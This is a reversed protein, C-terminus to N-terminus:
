KAIRTNYTTLGIEDIIKLFRPDDRLIDFDPNTAVLNFFTYNRYQSEMNKELWYLSKERNELIAYWWSTFFKDGSMGIVPIPKDTNIETLWAFLGPIGSRKYADMIEDDHNGGGPNSSAIKQLEKVAKDGEGLKAYNLFLLWNTLIYNPKLEQAMRCAELAKANEEEFYYIWANLNHMVWFYPELELVRNMHLRAEEIPGTIMLLQAYAQHAYGSNPNLQISLLLEKGGEEWKREPWILYGGKVLHAEACDPDLELAKRSFEKAKGIGEFYPQYWGWASLTLWADALGAYAEAFTSDSDVAKQYNRASGMLGERDIDVRQEDNAKNFLFRAKLFYDYAEPNITPMKDIQGIEERSLVAELRGAVNKAIDSSLALVDAFEGEFKESMIHKDSRADILQIFIRVKNESRLVSGELVYNVKLKRAIEPSTMLNGRFHEATTRSRVTIESIEFLYNLIDEMIGDAFYQNEPDDSLNKFPLVVISKETQKNGLVSGRDQILLVYLFYILILGSLIGFSVILINKRHLSKSVSEVNKNPKLENYTGSKLYQEDPHNRLYEASDKKRIEGPPLGYYEHFCKNFYAPSGFGVKFAIDSAPGSHQQLLEMARKLRIERIFWTINRHNAAKLKRHIVSRSLGTERALVNVGFNKNQLNALVIGSLKVIFAQDRSLPETM